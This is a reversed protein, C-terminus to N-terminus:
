KKPNRSFIYENLDSIHSNTTSSYCGYYPIDSHIQSHHFIYRTQMKNGDKACIAELKAGLPGIHGGHQGYFFNYSLGLMLIAFLYIGKEEFRIKAPSINLNKQSFMAIVKDSFLKYFLCSLIIIIAFISIIQALSDVRRNQLPNIIELKNDYYGLWYADLDDTIQAQISLSWLQEPILRNSDLLFSNNTIQTLEPEITDGSEKGVLNIAPKTDQKFNNIKIEIMDPNFRYSLLDIHSSRQVELRYSLTDQYVPPPTQTIISTLIVLGLAFVVETKILYVITQINKNFNHTDLKSILFTTFIKISFLAGGILLMFFMLVGWSSSFLNSLEKLHLWIIYAGSFSAFILILYLYKSQKLYIHLWDAISDNKYIKFLFINITLVLAIWAFKSLMHIWTIISSFEPLFPQASAHSAFARDLTALLIPLALILKTKRKLLLLLILTLAYIVVRLSSLAIYTNTSIFSFDSIQKYHPYLILITSLILVTCAIIIFKRHHINFLTLLIFFCILFVLAIMEISNGIQSSIYNSHELPPQEKLLEDSKKSSLLYSSNTYHGDDKSVVSWSVLIDKATKEKLSYSLEYDDFTKDKTTEILIGDTTQIKIYSSNLDPKETFKIKVQSIPESINNKPDPSFSTPSAHARAQRASMLLLVVAFLISFLKWLHM